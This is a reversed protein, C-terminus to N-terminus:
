GDAPAPSPADPSPAPPLLGEAFVTWMAELYAGDMQAVQEADSEDLVVNREEFWNRVLGMFATLIFRAPLDRRLQGAAQGAEIVAVGQAHLQALEDILEVPRSGLELWAILRLIDPNDALF